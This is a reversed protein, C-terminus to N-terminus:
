AAHVKPLHLLKTEFARRIMGATNKVKLKQMLSKRHSVVTHPSIFLKNAIENITLEWAILMLIQRERESISTPTNMSSTKEKEL